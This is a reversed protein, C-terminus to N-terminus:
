AGKMSMAMTLMENVDEIYKRQLGQLMGVSILDCMVERNRDYEEETMEDEDLGNADLYAGWFDNLVWDTNFYIKIQKQKEAMLNWLYKDAM